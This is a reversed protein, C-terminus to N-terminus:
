YTAGGQAAALKPRISLLYILAVIWGLGCLLALVVMLVIWLVKNQGIAAWAADPRTAADVIGWITLAFAALGLIIIFTLAVPSFDM